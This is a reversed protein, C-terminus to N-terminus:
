GFFDRDVDRLVNILFQFRADSNCPCVKCSESQGPLLFVAGTDTQDYSM